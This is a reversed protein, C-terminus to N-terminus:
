GSSDILPVDLAHSLRENPALGDEWSSRLTTPDLQAEILFRVM